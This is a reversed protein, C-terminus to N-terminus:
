SFFYLYESVIRDLMGKEIAALSLLLEPGPIPTVAQLRQIYRGLVVNSLISPPDYVLIAKRWLFSSKKLDPEDDDSVPIAADENQIGSASRSAVTKSTNGTASTALSTTIADRTQEKGFAARLPKAFAVVASLGHVLAAWVMSQLTSFSPNMADLKLSLLSYAYKLVPESLNEFCGKICYIVIEHNSAATTASLSIFAKTASEVVITMANRFDLILNQDGPASKLRISGKHNRAKDAAFLRCTTTVTSLVDRKMIEISPYDSLPSQLPKFPTSSPKFTAVAAVPLNERLSYFRKKHENHDTDIYNQLRNIDQQKSAVLAELVRNCDELERIRTSMPTIFGPSFASVPATIPSSQEAPLPSLSMSM